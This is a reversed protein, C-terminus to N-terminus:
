KPFVPYCTLPLVDYKGLVDFADIAIRHTSRTESDEIAPEIHIEHPGCPLDVVEFLTISKEKESGQQSVQSVLRDDIYVHSLGLTPAKEGVWRIGMGVFDFAVRNKQSTSYTTYTASNNANALQDWKGTYQILSTKNDEYRVPRPIHQWTLGSDNTKFVAESSAVFIMNDNRYQPSFEIHQILHNNEILESGFPMFHKGGDRSKFLGKGKVSVILIQDNAYEPSLGVTLIYCQEGLSTTEVRAWNEGGDVSKYLGVGGALFLTKDSRYNPSVFIDLDYLKSRGLESLRWKEDRSKENWDDLFELGKNIPKWTVGADSSKFVGRERASAYLTNDSTYNPSMELNWAKFNQGKTKLREVSKGGDRSIFNGRHRTTVFVTHDDVFDPSVRLGKPNAKLKDEKSLLDTTISKPLGYRHLRILLRKKLETDWEAHLRVREWGDGRNMSRLLADGEDETTFIIKDAGYKPSFMIKRLRIFKLGKNIVRWSLDLNRSIYAGADFTTVAVDFNGEYSPSLALSLIHGVPETELQDWTLGGDVSKFLGDFGALFMTGSAGPAFRISHFQPSYFTPTNAQEHTSLGTSHQVWSEGRDTSKFVAEHWTSVYLTGDQDFQPSLAISRISDDTIGKGIRELSGEKSGLRYMGGKETGIFVRGDGGFHAAIAISRIGGSDALSAFVEWTKGRDWSRHIRGRDDGILVGGGAANGYFAISTVRVADGIVQRWQEGENETWYLGGESGAALLVEMPKNYPSVALERVKKDGLGENVKVWSLGGDRSRYVGDGDTSVYVVGREEYFSGVAISTYRYRTDLGNVLEKWSLGGDTSKMFLNQTVVVFVTEESKYGDSIALARIVDHPNHARSIDALSVIGILFLLMSLNIRKVSERM